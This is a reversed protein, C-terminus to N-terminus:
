QGGHFRRLELVRSREWQGRILTQPWHLGVRVKQGGSRTGLASTVAVKSWVLDWQSFDNLGQVKLVHQQAPRWISFRPREPVQDLKWSIVQFQEQLGPFAPGHLRPDGLIPPNMGM